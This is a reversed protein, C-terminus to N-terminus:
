VKQIASISNLFEDITKTQSVEETEEIDEFEHWDHDDANPVEFFLLPLQWGAADFYEGDILNERITEEISVVSINNPNAFVVYGYRKYNSADRYLYYFKINGVSTM